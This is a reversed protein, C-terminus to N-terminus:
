RTSDPYADDRSEDFQSGPDTADLDIDEEWGRGRLRRAAESLVLDADHDLEAPIRMTFEDLRQDAVAGALEDLRDAIIADPIFDEARYRTSM